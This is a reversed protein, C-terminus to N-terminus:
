RRDHTVVLLATDDTLEGSRTADSRGFTLLADAIGAASDHWEAATVLDRDVVRPTTADTLGDTYFAIAMDPSLTVSNEPFEDLDVMGLVRGHEGHLTSPGDRVIVLPPPHGGLSFSVELDGDDRRAVCGFAATCSRDSAAAKLARHLWLMATSADCKELAAARLTHRAAATLAAAGVGHGQVDGIFFDLAHDDVIVTDYFDGGVTLTSGVARYRVAIDVGDITPVSEPVLTHQLTELIGKLESRTTYRDSIDVLITVAGRRGGITVAHAEMQVWVRPREARPDHVGLTADARSMTSRLVVVPPLESGSIPTGDSYSFHEAVRLGDGLLEDITTGLLAAAAANAHVVMGDADHVLVGHRMVTAFEVIASAVAPEVPHAEV